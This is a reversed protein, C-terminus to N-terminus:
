YMAYLHRSMVLNSVHESALSSTSAAAPTPVQDAVILGATMKNASLEGNQRANTISNVLLPTMDDALAIDTESLHLAARISTTSALESAYQVQHGRTTPDRANDDHAEPFVEDFTFEHLDFYRHLLTAFVLKYVSVPPVKNTSCFADLTGRSNVPIPISSYM